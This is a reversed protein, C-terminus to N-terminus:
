KKREKAQKAGWKLGWPTLKYAHAKRGRKYRPLKGLFEAAGWSKTMYSIRRRAESDTIGFERVVDLVTFRDPCNQYIWFLIDVTRLKPDTREWRADVFKECDCETCRGKGTKHQSLNCGCKCQREAMVVERTEHGATV